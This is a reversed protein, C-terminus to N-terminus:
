GGAPEAGRGLQALSKARGLPSRRQRRMLDRAINHATRCLYGRRQASTMRGARGDAIWQLAKEWAHSAAENAIDEAVRRDRLYAVVSPYFLELCYKLCESHVCPQEHACLPRHPLSLSM